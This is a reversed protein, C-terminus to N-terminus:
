RYLYLNAGFQTCIAAGEMGRLQELAFINSICIKGLFIRVKRNSNEVAPKYM